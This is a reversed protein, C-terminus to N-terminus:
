PNKPYDVEYDLDVECDVEIEHSYLRHSMHVNGAEGYVTVGFSLVLIIALIASFFRKKM